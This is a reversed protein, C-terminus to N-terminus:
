VAPVLASAPSGRHAPGVRKAILPGMMPHDQLVAIHAHLLRQFAAGVFSWAAAAQDPLAELVHAGSCERLWTAADLAKLEDRRSDPLRESKLHREGM